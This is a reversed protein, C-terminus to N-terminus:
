LHRRLIKRFNTWEEEIKDDPLSHGLCFKFFVKKVIQEIKPKLEEVLLMTMDGKTQQMSAEVIAETRERLKEGESHIPRIKVGTKVFGGKTSPKGM